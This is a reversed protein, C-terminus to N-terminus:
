PCSGNPMRPTGRYPGGTATSYVETANCWALQSDNAAIPAGDPYSRAFGHTFDTLTWTVRDIVTAGSRLEVFDGINDFTINAAGYAEDHPLDRNEVALPSQALVWRGGPALITGTITYTEEASSSAPTGVLLLGALDVPCTGANVIEIWEGRDTSGSRSSIMIEVIALRESTPSCLAGGADLGSDPGADVAADEGAGADTSADV